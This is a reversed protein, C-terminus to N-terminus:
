GFGVVLWRMLIAAACNHVVMCLVTLCMIGCLPKLLPLRGCCGDGGRMAWIKENYTSSHCLVASRHHRKSVRANEQHSQDSVRDGM